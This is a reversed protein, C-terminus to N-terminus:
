SSKTRQCAIWIEKDWPFHKMHGLFPPTPSHSASSASAEAKPQRHWHIGPLIGFPPHSLTALSVLQCLAAVLHTPLCCRFSKDDKPWSRGARRVGSEKGGGAGQIQNTRESPLSKNNRSRYISWWQTNGAYDARHRQVSFYKGWTAMTLKYHRRWFLFFFPLFPELYTCSRTWTRTSTRARTM